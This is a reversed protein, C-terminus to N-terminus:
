VKIKVTSKKQPRFAEVLRDYVAKSASAGGLGKINEQLILAEQTLGLSKAITEVEFSGQLNCYPILKLRLFELAGMFGAAYMFANTKSEWETGYKQQIASFVNIIIQRQIELEHIDIQEFAGKDEILPKIATVATSL